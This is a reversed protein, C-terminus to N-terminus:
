CVRFTLVLKESTVRPSMMWAAQRKAGELRYRIDLTRWSAHRWSGKLHDM